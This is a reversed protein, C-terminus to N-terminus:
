PLHKLQHDWIRIPAHPNQSAQIKSHCLQGNRSGWGPQVSSSDPRHHSCAILYPHSALKPATKHLPTAWFSLSGLLGSKLQHNQFDRLNFSHFCGPKTVLRRAGAVIFHQKRLNWWIQICFLENKGIYKKWITSWSPQVADVAILTKIQFQRHILFKLWRLSQFAGHFRGFQAM